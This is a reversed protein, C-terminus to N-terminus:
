KKKEGEWFAPGVLAMAGVLGGLLFALSFDWIGGSPRSAVPQVVAIGIMIVGVLVMGAFVCFLIKTKM